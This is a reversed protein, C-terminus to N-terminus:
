DAVRTRGRLGEQFSSAGQRTPRRIAGIEPRARLEPTGLSDRASASVSQPNVLPSLLPLCCCTPQRAAAALSHPATGVAGLLLRAASPAIANKELLKKGEAQISIARASRAGCSFAPTMDSRTSTTLHFNALCVTVPLLKHQLRIISTRSMRKGFYPHHTTAGTAIFVTTITTVCM